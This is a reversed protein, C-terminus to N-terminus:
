GDGFEEKAQAEALNVDDVGHAYGRHYAERVEKVKHSSPGKKKLSRRLGARWGQLYAKEARTLEDKCRHLDVRTSAQSRKRM